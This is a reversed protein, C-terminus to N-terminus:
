SASSRLLYDFTLFSLTSFGVRRKKGIYCCRFNKAKQIPTSPGSKGDYLAMLKTTGM